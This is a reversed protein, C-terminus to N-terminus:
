GTSSSENRLFYPVAPWVWEGVFVVSCRGCKDRIWIATFIYAATCSPTMYSEGLLWYSLPLSSTMHRCYNSAGRRWKSLALSQSPLESIAEHALQQCPSTTSPTLPSLYAELRSFYVFVASIVPLKGCNKALFDSFIGNNSWFYKILYVRKSANTLKLTKTVSLTTSNYRNLTEPTM